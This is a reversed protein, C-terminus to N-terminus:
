PSRGPQHGKKWGVFGLGAGVAGLIPPLFFLAIAACVFSGVTYPVGARGGVAPGSTAAPDTTTLQQPRTRTEHEDV